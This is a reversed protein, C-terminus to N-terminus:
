GVEMKHWVSPFRNPIVHLIPVGRESFPRHDDDMVGWLWQQRLFWVDGATANVLGAAKLRDDTDALHYYLWDTERYFSSFKPAPAGLLDLLVLVDMTELVTPLPDLRRKAIPHTEPLYTEEWKQALHRSGYVSDDHSWNVFAEEGDFLIIQLTTEAAENEDMTASLLPTGAAVREKREKLLPTLAEAVDILTGM